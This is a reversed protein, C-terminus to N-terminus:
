KLKVQLGKPVIWREVLEFVGQTLLALAAAPIAGQLILGMNDLRIGSIIPEGYGGAGILAGLTATGINIIAATKIGALISRMALPLEILRLRALPPLGLAHASEWLQPSIECLGVYTNRVIPLLSYLFLAAIAPTSGIGLLPIMFVFIALSPLTQIIGVVGLIIQGVKDYKFTVIGLPISILIAALLSIGVLALHEITRNYIQTFVTNASIMTTKINLQQELFDAAVQSEPVKDLRARSNMKIMESEPLQGELKKIMDVVKPLREALDMRYVIVANYEPFHQLDDQLVRLNYHAIEGDTAFADKVQIVGKNLAQYALNHQMGLVDTQPLQYTQRVSQWGDSRAIFADGFGFKFDPYQRLDSITRINHKKAVKEKMSLAYTNNFGLPKSMLLGKQVLQKPIMDTTIGQGAFLERTITGTYEVYVDIDGRLLARWLVQTSGLERRHTVEAGAHTALGKILEGLIVSETFNKSAVTVTPQAAAVVSTLMFMLCTFIFVKTKV